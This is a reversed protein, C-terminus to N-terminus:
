RFIVKRYLVFNWTTTIVLAIIKAVASYVGFDILAGIACSSFCYNFILLLIYLVLSKIPNTASNFTINKNLLFNYATSVTLSILNAVAVRCGFFYFLQFVGVDIAASTGGVLLYIVGQGVISNKEM